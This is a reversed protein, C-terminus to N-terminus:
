QPATAVSPAYSYSTMDLQYNTPLIDLQITNPKLHLCLEYTWYYSTMYLQLNTPILNQLTTWFKGNTVEGTFLYTPTKGDNIGGIFEKYWVM